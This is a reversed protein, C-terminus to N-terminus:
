RLRSTTVTAPEPPQSSPSPTDSHKSSAYTTASANGHGTSGKGKKKGASETVGPAFRAPRAPSVGQPRTRRSMPREAVKCLWVADLRDTKPRGPLIVRIPVRVCCVLEAKRYGASRGARRDGRQGANQDADPRRVEPPRQGCSGQACSSFDLRRARLLVSRGTFRSGAGPKSVVEVTLSTVADAPLLWRSEGGPVPPRRRIESAQFTYSACGDPGSSRSAEM